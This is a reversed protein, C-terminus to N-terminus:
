ERRHRCLGPRGDGSLRDQMGNPESASLGLHCPGRSHTDLTYALTLGHQQLVSLDRDVMECVPDILVALGSDRCGILYTYTGSEPEFLQRFIM